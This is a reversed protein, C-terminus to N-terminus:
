RGTRTDIAATAVGQQVRQEAPVSDTLRLLMAAIIWNAVLSSGGAAMFPTTLGTVPIVRTVGGIVIFTQLAIVFGLGVGLLRGFDDQGAYAVRFGRSVLLLFLGLIAFVGVLGLEEGIASFIYDSQALPTLYPRGQGLGTGTIGGNAFGFLGTVLQYSGSFQRNYITNDFPELWAQFRGHVYTLTQAAILAGGVFLILGIIVWSARGTAVYIMVLFLGFYLLSTGLDRQFVLVSMAAGWVILIPGLDRARPLQVGLIRRGVISLSDRATVLYGAFFLALSIKALEGPQFSFPGIGIWVRAGYITRGIGPLMPLLLLVISVLMFIYRYRQLFRHNRVLLLVLIAMVMAMCTWAIQRVGASGWGTASPTHLDIRYIEAIGIGNLVLAIPLIFPDANKAVIRLVVHMVLALVLIAAGEILIPVDIRNHVGLQVLLMAGACIGCAIVLLGLELNRARAPERLKITITQTLSQRAAIDAM